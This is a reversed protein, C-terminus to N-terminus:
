WEEAEDSLWVGDCVGVPERDNELGLASLRELRSLNKPQAPLSALADLREDNRRLPEAGEITVPATWVVRSCSQSLAARM